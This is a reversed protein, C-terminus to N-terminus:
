GKQKKKDCFYSMIDEILPGSLMQSVDKKLLVSVVVGGRSVVHCNYLRNIQCFCEVEGVESNEDIIDGAVLDRSVSYTLYKRIADPDPCNESLYVVSQSDRVGVLAVVVSDFKLSDNVDERVLSSAEKVPFVKNFGSLVASDETDPACLSFVRFPPFNNCVLLFRSNPSSVPLYVLKKKLVREPALTTKSCLLLLNLCEKYPLQQWSPSIVHVHAGHLVCGYSTDM